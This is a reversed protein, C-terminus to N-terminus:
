EQLKKFEEDVQEWYTVLETVNIGIYYCIMLDIVRICRETSYERSLKFARETPSM